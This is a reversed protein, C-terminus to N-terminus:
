GRRRVAAAEEARRPEQQLRARVIRTGDVAVVIAADEEGRGERAKAMMDEARGGRRGDRGAVVPAVPGEEEGGRCEACPINGNVSAGLALSRWEHV